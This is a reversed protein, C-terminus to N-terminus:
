PELPSAPPQLLEEQPPEGTLAELFAVVEEIEQQTLGLPALMDERHGVPNQEDLVSYFRVVEELTEFHGGHMYPPTLAINRLTPTKFQGHDESTQTLYHLWREKQGDRKDSFPGRANFINSKVKPVGDWRGRDIGRRADPADTQAADPKRSPHSQMWPRPSLALNHFASDSFNPGIHCRICGAKGLFLKLGRQAEIKMTGPATDAPTKSGDLLSKAWADFPADKQVLLRLYAGLSKTINSAVRNITQQDEASMDEWASHDPHEPDDPVPRARRPFRTQDSLDPFEGFIAEYAASLEDDAAFLHALEARSFGMEEPSELPGFAQAWISDVRGDWDFWHYYAVNLLSPTHRPTQGIGEGLKTPASFGHDPQHCTACSVEGNASLRTDFFLFQGLRAAQPDDSYANTEDVPAPGLPTLRGIM